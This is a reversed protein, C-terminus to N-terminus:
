KQFIVGPYKTITTTLYKTCNKLLKASRPNFIKFAKSEQGLVPKAIFKGWGERQITSLIVATVRESAGEAGRASTEAAVLATFEDRTLCYTPAIPIGIKKFHNYYLLKSGVFEQLEWNPYINSSSRVANLFTHYVRKGRTRDLHYSELLDYIILFNIDNKALRSESIEKPSIYDVEFIDGHYVKLWEGISVDAAIGVTKPVEQEFNKLMYADREIKFDPFADFDIKKLWPRPPNRRRLSILEDKKAEAIPDTLLIGIRKKRDNM